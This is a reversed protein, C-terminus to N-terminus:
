KEQVEKRKEKLRKIMFDCFYVLEHQDYHVGFAENRKQIRENYKQRIKVWDNYGYKSIPFKKDMFDSWTLNEADDHYRKARRLDKIIDDLLEKEKESM